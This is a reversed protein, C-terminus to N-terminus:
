KQWIEKPITKNSAIFKQDKWSRALKEFEICVANDGYKRRIEAIFPSLKEYYYPVQVCTSLYLTIEDAYGRQIAISLNEFMSLISLVAVRLDFNEYIKEFMKEPSDKEHDIDGKDLFTRVRVFDPYDLRHMIEFSRHVKEREATTKFTVAVYYGAYIAALGGLIASVYTLEERFQKFFIFCFVLITGVLFILALITFNFKFEILIGPKRNLSNSKSNNM